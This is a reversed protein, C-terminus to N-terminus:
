KEQSEDGVNASTSIAVSEKQTQVKNENIKKFKALEDLRAKEKEVEARKQAVKAQLNELLEVFHDSFQLRTFNELESMNSVKNQLIAEFLIPNTVIGDLLLSRIFFFNLDISQNLNSQPEDSLLLNAM